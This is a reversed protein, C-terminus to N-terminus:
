SPKWVYSRVLNVKFVKYVLEEQESCGLWIYYFVRPGKLKDTSTGDLIAYQDIIVHIILDINTQYLLQKTTLEYLTCYIQLCTVIADALTSMEQVHTM